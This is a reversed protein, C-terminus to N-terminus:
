PANAGILATVTVSRDFSSHEQFEPLERRSAFRERVTVARIPNRRGFRCKKVSGSRSKTWLFPDGVLAEREM